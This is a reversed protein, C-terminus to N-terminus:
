EGKIYKIYELERLAYEAGWPDDLLENLIEEAKAFDGYEVYVFALRRKLFSIYEGDLVPSGSNEKLEQYIIDIARPDTVNSLMVIYEYKYALKDSRSCCKHLFSIAKERELLDAYLFGCEYTADTM